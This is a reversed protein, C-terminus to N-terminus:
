SANAAASRLAEDKRKKPRPEFPMVVSLTADGQRDRVVVSLTHKRRKVKIELEHFEFDAAGPASARELEFPYSEVPSSNGRADQSAVQVEYRAVVGEASPLWSLSDLPVAVTVPLTAWGGRLRSPLGVTVPFGDIAQDRLLLGNLVDLEEDVERDLNVFSRQTRAHLGEGDVLVRVRRRLNDADAPPYVAISYYSMGAEAARRLMHRREGNFLVEGGTEQALYTLVEQLRKERSWDLNVDRGEVDVAVISYDLYNATDTLVRLVRLGSCDGSVCWSAFDDARSLEAPDWSGAVLVLVKRGAPEPIARLAAAAALVSRRSGNGEWNAVFDEMRGRAIHAIGNAPLTMAHVLTRDLTEVSSSWGSLVELQEGDFTVVAARDRPGLQGLEARLFKLVFNRRAKLTLENDLFFLYNSNEEPATIAGAPTPLKAPIAIRPDSRRIEEFHAIELLQDGLVVRFADKPLGTVLRGLSDRVQVELNLIRVDIADGFREETEAAGRNAADTQLAAPAGAAAVVLAFSALASLLLATRSRRATETSDCPSM